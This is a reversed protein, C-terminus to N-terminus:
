ASKKEDAWTLADSWHQGPASGSPGGDPDEDRVHGRLKSEFERDVLQRKGEAAYGALASALIRPRDAAPVSSGDPRKWANPRMEDPGYNRFIVRRQLPERAFPCDELVVAYSGLWPSLPDDLEEDPEGDERTRAHARGVREETNPKRDERKPIRDETIATADRHSGSPMGIPDPHTYEAPPFWDPNARVFEGVIGVRPLGGVHRQVSKRHNVNGVDLSPDHHLHGIIWLVNSEHRIWGENKLEQIADGLCASPIGTKEALMEILEGRYRVELGSPGTSLKLAVFAWRARESLRQFDPGDLLVVKIARYAGRESM